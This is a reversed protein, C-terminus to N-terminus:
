ATTNLWDFQGDLETRLRRMIRYKAQRVAKDTMGLDRSIEACPHGEVALRWFAQWTQPEVESRILDLAGHLLLRDSIEPEPDHDSELAADAVNAFRRLADTGGVGAPQASNRRQFDQLKHRAIGWL